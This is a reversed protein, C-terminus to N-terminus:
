FPPGSQNKQNRDPGKLDRQTRTPGQLGSGLGQCVDGQQHKEPVQTKVRNKPPNTTRSRTWTSIVGHIPYLWSMIMNIINWINCVNVSTNIIVSIIMSKTGTWKSRSCRWNSNFYSNSNSYIYSNTKRIDSTSQFLLLFRDKEKLTNITSPSFPGGTWTLETWSPHTSHTRRLYMRRFRGKSHVFIFSFANITYIYINLNMWYSFPGTSQPFIQGGRSNVVATQLLCSLLVVWGSFWVGIQAWYGYCGSEAAVIYRHKSNVVARIPSKQGTVAASQDSYLGM